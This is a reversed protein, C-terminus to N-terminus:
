VWLGKKRRQNVRSSYLKEVEKIIKHKFLVRSLSMMTPNEKEIRDNSAFVIVDTQTPLKM